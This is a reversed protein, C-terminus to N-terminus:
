VTSLNHFTSYESIRPQVIDIGIKEVMTVIHEPSVNLKIKGLSYKLSLEWFSIASVFIENEPDAAQEIVKKSLKESDFTIWLLAHTDLLFKM